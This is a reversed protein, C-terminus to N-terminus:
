KNASQSIPQNASQSIPQNASQSIIDDDNNQSNASIHLVESDRIQELLNTQLDILGLAQVQMDEITLKHSM